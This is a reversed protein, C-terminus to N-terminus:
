PETYLGLDKVIKRLRCGDLLTRKKTETPTPQIEEKVEHFCARLKGGSIWWFRHRLRTPPELIRIRFIPGKEALVQIRFPDRSHRCCISGPRM